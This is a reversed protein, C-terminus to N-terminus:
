FTVFPNNAAYGVNYPATQQSQAYDQRVGQVNTGAFGPQFISNTTAPGSFQSYGTNMGFTYEAGYPQHNAAPAGYGQNLARVEQVNTGAFGPQFVSNAVGGSFGGTFGYGGGYAGASANRARVEQVNTGAFGPQFVANASPVGVSAFQPTYGLSQTMGVPNYGIGYAQQNVAPAGYGQNLARVEQVNTGAFGPSFISNAPTGYVGAAYTSSVAPSQQSQLYDHRVEQPNTGAFGPQFVANAPGSVPVYSQFQNQGYINNYTM